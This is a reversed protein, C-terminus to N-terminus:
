FIARLNEQEDWSMEADSDITIEARDAIVERVNATVALVDLELTNRIWGITVDETRTAGVTGSV